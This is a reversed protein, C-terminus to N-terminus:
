WRLVATGTLTAQRASGAPKRNRLPSVQPLGWVFGHFCPVHRAASHNTMTQPLGICLLALRRPEWRRMMRPASAEIAIRAAPERKVTRSLGFGAERRRKEQVVPQGILSLTRIQNLVRSTM